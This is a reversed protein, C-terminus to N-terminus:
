DDDDDDNDDDSEPALQILREATEEPSLGYVITGLIMEKLHAFSLGESVEVLKNFLESKVPVGKLLNRLYDKRVEVSPPLVEIRLDFRSPRNKIRDELDDIYNTTALFVVNTKKAAVGDLMEVVDEGYFQEIDELLVVVPRGPEIYQLNELAYNTAEFNRCNIFVGGIEIIHQAVLHATATKGMGPAGYMLIGRQHKIGLRDYIEKKEWFTKIEAMVVQSQSEKLLFRTEEQLEIPKLIYQYGARTPEYAGAPLSEVTDGCAFFGAESLSWQNNPM